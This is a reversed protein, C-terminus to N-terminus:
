KITKIILTGVKVAEKGFITDDNISALVGRSNIDKISIYHTSTKRDQLPIVWSGIPINIHKNTFVKFVDIRDGVKM